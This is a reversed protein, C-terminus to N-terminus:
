SNELSKVRGLKRERRHEKRTLEWGYDVDRCSDSDSDSNESKSNVTRVLANRQEVNGFEELELGVV